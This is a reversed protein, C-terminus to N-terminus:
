CAELHHRYQQSRPWVRAPPVSDPGRVQCILFGLGPSSFRSVCDTMPCRKRFITLSIWLTWFGNRKLMNMFIPSNTLCRKDSLHQPGCIFLAHLMGESQKYDPPPLLTNGPTFLCHWSSTLHSSLLVPRSMSSIQRRQSMKSLQNLSEPM